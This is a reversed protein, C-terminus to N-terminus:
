QLYQDTQDLHAKALSPPSLFNRNERSAPLHNHKSSHLSKNHWQALIWSQKDPVCPLLPLLLFNSVILAVLFYKLHALLFSSPLLSHDLSYRSDHCALNNKQVSNKGRLIVLFIGDLIRQALHALIQVLISFATPINAPNSFLFNDALFCIKM